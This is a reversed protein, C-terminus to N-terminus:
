SRHLFILQMNLTHCWAKGIGFVILSYMPSKMLTGESLGGNTRESRSYLLYNVVLSYQQSALTYKSVAPLCAQNSCLLVDLNVGCFNM